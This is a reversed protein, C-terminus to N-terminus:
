CPLKRLWQAVAKLDLGINLAGDSRSLVSILSVM